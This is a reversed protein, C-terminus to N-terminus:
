GVFDNYTRRAAEIAEPHRDRLPIPWNWWFEENLANDLAAFLAADELWGSVYCFSEM